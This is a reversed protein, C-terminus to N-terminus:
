RGGLRIGNETGQQQKFSQEVHWQITRDQALHQERAITGHKM